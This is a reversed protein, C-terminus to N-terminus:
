IVRKRCAFCSFFHRFASFLLSFEKEFFFFFDGGSFFIFVHHSMKAFVQPLFLFFTPAKDSWPGCADLLVASRRSVASVTHDEASSGSFDAAVIVAMLGAPHESARSDGSATPTSTAESQGCFVCLDPQIVLLTQTDRAGLVPPQPAFGRRSCGM